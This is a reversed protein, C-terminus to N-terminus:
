SDRSKRLSTIVDTSDEEKAFIESSGNTMWSLGSTQANKSGDDTKKPHLLQDRTSEHVSPEWESFRIAHPDDSEPPDYLRDKCLKISEALKHKYLDLDQEYLVAAEPNWPNKTDIKYFIKRAYLLVQWIHNVNRRWKQFARKVDLEGSEPNIVPHFVPPDFVLRPCDGDPYNEPIFLSFRFIGEQYLGQRIFLVGNWFLASKASPIVYVGPLKQKQLQNYEALLSYELFFPGYSHNGKPTSTKKDIMKSALNLQTESDPVPPLQKRLGSGPRANHSPQPSPDGNKSMDQKEDTAVSTMAAETKPDKDNSNLKMLIYEIELLVPDIHIGSDEDIVSCDAKGGNEFKESLTVWDQEGNCILERADLINESQGSDRESGNEGGNQSTHQELLYGCGDRLSAAQSLKTKKTLSEETSGDQWTKIKQALRKLALNLGRPSDPLMTNESGADSVHEEIGNLTIREEKDDDDEDENLIMREEKDDEEEEEILLTLLDWPFKDDVASTEQQTEIGSQEDSIESETEIGSQKLSIKINSDDYEASSSGGSVESERSDNCVGTGLTEIIVPSVQVTSSTVEPTGTKVTLQEGKSSERQQMNKECLLFTVEREYCVSKELDGNLIKNEGWYGDDGNLLFENVAPPGQMKSKDSLQQILFQKCLTSLMPPLQEDSSSISAQEEACNSKVEISDFIEEEEEENAICNVLHGLPLGVDRSCLVEPMNTRDITKELLFVEDAASSKQLIEKESATLSVKNETGVFDEGGVGDLVKDGGELKDSGDLLCLQGSPHKDSPSTLSSDTLAKKESVVVSVQGETFVDSQGMGDIREEEGEEGNLVSLLELSFDDERIFSAGPM